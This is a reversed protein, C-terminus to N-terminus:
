AGDRLYGPVGLTGDAATARAGRLGLWVVAGTWAALGALWAITLAWTAPTFATYVPFLPAPIRFPAWALAFPDVALTVERARVALVLAATIAATYAGLAAILATGARRTRLAALGEALPAALLPLVVVMQRGPFWWGRMTIAVFAAVLLEAVVLAAILWGAARRRRVLLVLGPLAPLLVPVWRLLGFEGDNWLGLLRYLRQFLVVHEGLIALTGGDDSYLANVAYPTLGGYTELHFWAYHLGALGTAALFLPWPGRRPFSLRLLSAAALVVAVWAYKSGLWMLVTPAAALGLADVPGPRGGRLLLLVALLVVAAAPLEPYLQTAYIFVPASVGLLGAAALSEAFRGTARLTVLFSLGVTVGGLAGLFAKTGDLGALAYAPLVLLSLGLNHPSLVRGDAAPVSQYWLPAPHDYFARYERAEYEDRLDLDGDTRLSHTTLLYFPEDGTIRAGQSARLGAGAQYLLAFAVALAAAAALTRRRGRGTM